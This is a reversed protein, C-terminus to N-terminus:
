ISDELLEGEEEKEGGNEFIMSSMRSRLDGNRFQNRGFVGEGEKGKIGM